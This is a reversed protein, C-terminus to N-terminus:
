SCCFPGTSRPDAPASSSTGGPRGLAGGGRLSDRGQVPCAAPEATRHVLGFTLLVTQEGGPEAALLRACELVAPDAEEPAAGAMVGAWKEILETM